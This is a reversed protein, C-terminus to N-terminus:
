CVALRRTPRRAPSVSPVRVALRLQPTQAAKDM